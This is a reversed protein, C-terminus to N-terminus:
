TKYSKMLGDIRYKSFFMVLVSNALFIYASFDKLFVVFLLTFLGIVKVKNKCIEKLLTLLYMKKNLFHTM